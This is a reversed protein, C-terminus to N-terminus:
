IIKGRHVALFPKMKASVTIRPIDKIGLHDCETASLQTSVVVNGDDDFSILHKDFLADHHACLLLGNNEDLKESDTSDAWGKIHSAVLM